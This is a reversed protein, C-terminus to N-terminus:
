FSYVSDGKILDTRGILRINTPLVFILRNKPRCTYLEQPVFPIQKFASSKSETRRLKLDRGKQCTKCMQGLQQMDSNKIGNQNVIHLENSVSGKHPKASRLGASRANNILM